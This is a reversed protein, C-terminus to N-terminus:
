RPTIVTEEPTYLVIAILQDALVPHRQSSAIFWVNNFGIVQHPTDPLASGEDIRRTSTLTRVM